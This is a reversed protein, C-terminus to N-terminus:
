VKQFHLRTFGIFDARYGNYVKKDIRIVRQNTNEKDHEGFAARDGVGVVIVVTDYGLGVLFFITIDAVPYAIIIVM